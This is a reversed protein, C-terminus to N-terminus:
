PADTITVDLRRSAYGLEGYGATRTEAHASIRFTNATVGAEQYGSSTCDVTVRFGTLGGNLDLQQPFSACNGDSLARAAGWEMGSRAAHYARVGQVAYSTTLHSVGSLSVMYGGLVALGVLIFLAAIISVGRQRHPSVTM